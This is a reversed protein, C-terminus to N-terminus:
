ASGVCGSIFVREYLHADEVAQGIRRLADLRRQSAQRRDLFYQVADEILLNASQYRGTALEEQVRKETEPSLTLNM